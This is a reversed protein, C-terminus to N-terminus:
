VKLMTTFLTVYTCYSISRPSPPTEHVDRTYEDLRSKRTTYTMPVWFFKPLCDSNAKKKRYLASELIAVLNVVKSWIEAKSPWLPRIRTDIGINAPDLFGIFCSTVSRLIGLKKYLPRKGFHGGSNRSKVMNWSQFSMSVQNQHRYRNNVPDLLGIFGNTVSRLVGLM